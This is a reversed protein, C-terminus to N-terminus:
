RRRGGGHFRRQDRVPDAERPDHQHRRPACGDRRRRDGQAGTRPTFARDALRRPVRWRWRSFSGTSRTRTSRRRLHLARGHPHGEGRVLHRDPPDIRRARLHLHRFVHRAAEADRSRGGAGGGHAIAVAVVGIAAEADAESLVAMTYAGIGFFAVTALSIYRTPGSFLAWATALVIYSLMSIGLAMYYGNAFLPLAALAATLAILLAFRAM